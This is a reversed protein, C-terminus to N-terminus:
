HLKVRLWSIMSAILKHRAGVRALISRDIPSSCAKFTKIVSWHKASSPGRFGTGSFILWQTSNIMLGNITISMVKEGWATRPEATEIRDLLVENSVSTDRASIEESGELTPDAPSISQCSLCSELHVHLYGCRFCSPQHSNTLWFLTFWLAADFYSLLYLTLSSSSESFSM